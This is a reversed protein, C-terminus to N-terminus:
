PRPMVIEGGLDEGTDPDPSDHATGDISSNILVGYKELIEDLNVVGEEVEGSDRMTQPMDDVKIQRKSLRSVKAGQNQLEIKKRTSAFSLAGDLTNVLEKLEEFSDFQVAYKKTERIVDTSEGGVPNVVDGVVEVEPM